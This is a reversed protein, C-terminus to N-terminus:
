FNCPFFDMCYFLSLQCEFRMKSRMFFHMKKKINKGSIKLYFRKIEVVQLLYYSSHKQMQKNTKKKIERM